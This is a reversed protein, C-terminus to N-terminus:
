AFFFKTYGDHNQYFNENDVALFRCMYFLFEYVRPLLLVSNEYRKRGEDTQMSPVSALPKQITSLDMILGLLVIQLEKKKSGIPLIRHASKEEECNELM